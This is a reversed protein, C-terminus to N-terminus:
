KLKKEWRKKDYTEFSRGYFARMNTYCEVPSLIIADYGFRKFYEELQSKPWFFTFLNGEQRFVDPRNKVVLHFKAIGRDTMLVKAEVCQSASQPNRLAIEQLKNQTAQDYAYVESTTFLSRIRSIRFSHPYGERCDTCLLYNCQEEKSSAILYPNIKFVTDPAASSSFTVVHRLRIAKRLEDFVDQYIIVERDHRAMALYSSFLDCLYSSMSTDSLLNNEITRCIDHSAGSVTLTLATSHASRSSENKEYAKMVRDAIAEAEARSVQSCSSIETFITQRLGKQKARYQDFYNVLLEKLFANLNISGDKKTFEFLEADNRLRSRIDDSLYIKYKETM